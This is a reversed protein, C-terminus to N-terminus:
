ADEDVCIEDNVIFNYRYKFGRLLRTKYFFVVEDGSQKEMAEPLWSNFEGQILV